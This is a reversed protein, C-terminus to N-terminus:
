EFSLRGEADHRQLPLVQVCLVHAKCESFILGYGVCREVDILLQMTDM